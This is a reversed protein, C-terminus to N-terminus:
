RAVDSRTRAVTRGPDDRGGPDRCGERLRGGRGAGLLRRLPATASIISRKPVCELSRRFLTMALDITRPDEMLPKAVQFVTYYDLGSSKLDFEALLRALAETKSQQQFANQIEGISDNLRAPNKKLLVRLHDLASAIEGAQVLQVAMQVRLRADDPRLRLMVESITKLKDRQGAARYYAALTQHLPLSQPSQQLQAELRAIIEGLKGSRALVQIAQRQAPEDFDGGRSAAPGPTRRLVQHAIQVAAAANGQRQYQTMLGILADTNNGARRRARALVAEALEHMGLQHM